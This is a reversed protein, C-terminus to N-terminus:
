ESYLSKLQGWTTEEAPTALCPCSADANIMGTGGVGYVVNFECDVIEIQGSPLNPDPLVPYACCPPTTGQTFYQMSLVHIPSLMCAGYAIAVGTQSNGLTIPFIQQDSLYLALCCAPQPASFQCGTAGGMTISVHVLHYLTVGPMDLLNCDMGGTDRFLGICGAQAWVFSATAVIVAALFLARKM